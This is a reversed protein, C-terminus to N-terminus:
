VIYGGNVGLVQGTIFSAQESALYVVASAVEEPTGLRGLPTEEALVAKDEKSYGAMMPTEITGPSVCNVRIGSPGVEKALAKTLGILGAKSASYIAECSAGVEGWMSAINLICGAKEHVMQPLVAKSMFFASKLNSDMIFDYDAETVDTLLGSAAVGANNVLVSVAGLEETAKKVAALCESEKRLDAVYVRTNGGARNLAESLARAEQESKNCLMAVSAGQKAFASAVAAGIGTGAGTVIVSM